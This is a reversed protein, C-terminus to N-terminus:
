RGEVLGAIADVADRVTPALSSSALYFGFLACVVAHWTKLTTWHCLAVVSLGLLLVASVSVVMM